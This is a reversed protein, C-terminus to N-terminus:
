ASRVSVQEFLSAASPVGTPEGGASLLDETRRCYEVFIDPGGSLHWSAPWGVAALAAPAGPDHALQLAFARLLAFARSGTLLTEPWVQLAQLPQQAQLARLGRALAVAESTSGPRGRHLMARVRRRLQAPEMPKAIMDIIGLKLARWVVPGDTQASVLLIPVQSGATRWAQALALGNTEPLMYDLVVLQVAHREFRAHAEAAHSATLVEWGSTRLALKMALQMSREDDVVLIPGTASPTM